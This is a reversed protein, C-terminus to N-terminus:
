ESLVKRVQFEECTMGFGGIKTEFIKTQEETPPGGTEYYEGLVGEFSLSIESTTVYRIECNECVVTYIKQFKNPGSGWNTKVITHFFVKTDHM